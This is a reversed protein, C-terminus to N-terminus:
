GILELRFKTSSYIFSIKMTIKCMNWKLHETNNKKRLKKLEIKNKNKKTNIKNKWESFCIENINEQIRLARKKYM